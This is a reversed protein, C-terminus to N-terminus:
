DGRCILGTEPDVYVVRPYLTSYKGHGALGVQRLLVGLLEGNLERRVRARRCREEVEPAVASWERGVQRPLFRLLPKLHRRLVDVHQFFAVEHDAHRKSVEPARRTSVRRPLKDLREIEPERSDGKMLPGRERYRYGNGPDERGPRDG